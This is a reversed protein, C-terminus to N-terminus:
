SDVGNESIECVFVASIEHWPATTRFGIRALGSNCTLRPNLKEQKM